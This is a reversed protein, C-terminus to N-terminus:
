EKQKGLRHQYSHHEVTDLWKIAFFLLNFIKLKTYNINILLKNTKSERMIIIIIIIIIIINNNCLNPRKINMYHSM